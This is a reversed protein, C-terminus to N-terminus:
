ELESHSGKQMKHQIFQLITSVDAPSSATWHDDKRFWTMQRKAYRRSNRKILDVADSLSCEGSFFDFLEQYGVTQLATNERFPYLLRAEELLGQEMMKDVRQNIRQYLVERDLEVLIYIPEFPRVSKEQKQFSSFPQGSVRCVSIARILRHPNKIDVQQYYFPDLQALEEQLAEIGAEELKKEVEQRISLPVEPYTDLGECLARIFLGSGGVLVAVEKKTYIQELLALADREFDGVSYSDAISLSNIFYHPARALDEATPKATGINMERYFQRSDCSLIVTDFHNAVQIALETKGSATPGGIVILYKKM